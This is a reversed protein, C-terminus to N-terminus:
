ILYALYCELGRVLIWWKKKYLLPLSANVLIQKIVIIIWRHYVLFFLKTLTTEYILHLSTFNFSFNVLIMKSLLSTELNRLTSQTHLVSVYTKDVKLKCNSVSSYTKKHINTRWATTGARPFTHAVLM